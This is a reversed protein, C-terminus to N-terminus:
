DVGQLLTSADTVQSDFGTERTDLVLLNGDEEGGNLRAATRIRHCNACVVECKELEALITNWGARQILKSLDGIKEGKVHDFDMCVPPFTGKCDMCPQSKFANLKEYRRLRQQRSREGYKTKNKAYHEKMYAKRAEGTLPM